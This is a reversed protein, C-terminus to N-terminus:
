IGIQTNKKVVSLLHKHERIELLIYTFIVKALFRENWCMFMTNQIILDIIEISDCIEVQMKSAPTESNFDKEQKM